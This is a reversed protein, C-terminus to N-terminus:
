SVLTSVFACVCRISLFLQFPLLPALVWVASMFPLCQNCCKRSAGGTGHCCSWLVSLTRWCTCTWFPPCNDVMSASRGWASAVAAVGSGGPCGLDVEGPGQVAHRVGASVNWCCSLFCQPVRVESFPQRCSRGNECVPPPLGRWWGCCCLLVRAGGPWVQGWVWRAAGALALLEPSSPPVLAPAGLTSSLGLLELVM